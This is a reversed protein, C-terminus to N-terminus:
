EYVVFTCSGEEFAYSSGPGYYNYGDFIRQNWTVQYTITYEGAALPGAPVFWYVALDNGIQRPAQRFRNLQTLRNGNIRIDYAAADLHQQIYQQESAYWIWYIDITSGAKLNNPAPANFSTDDCYALVDVGEQISATENNLNAAPNPAITGDDLEPVSEENGTPTLISNPIGDPTLIGREPTDLINSIEREPTPTLTATPIVAIRSLATATLNISNIDIIPLVSEDVVLASTPTITPSPTWTSIVPTSNLSASRRTVTVTPSQTPLLLSVDDEGDGVIPIVPSPSIAAAILAGPLTPTITGGGIVATPFITGLAVSTLDTTPTFTPFPTPTAQLIILRSSMWGENGNDLKVNLWAGDSTQGIIEVLSNPQLSEFDDYTIGPGTRVNVRQLSNVRGLVPPIETPTPTDSPTFTLTPTPPIPTFTPIPTRTPEITATLRPTQSLIPALTATPAGSSQNAIPRSQCAAILFVPLIVILLARKLM